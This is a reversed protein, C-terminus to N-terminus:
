RIVCVIRGLGSFDFCSNLLGLGWMGTDAVGNKAANWDNHLPDSALRGRVMKNYLLYNVPSVRPQWKTLLCAISQRTM